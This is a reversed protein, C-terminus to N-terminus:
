GQASRQGVPFEMTFLSGHPKIDSYRIFGNHDSVIQNV